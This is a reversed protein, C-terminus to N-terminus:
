RAPCCRRNGSTFDSFHTNLPQDIVRPCPSSTTEPLPHFLPPPTLVEQEAAPENGKDAEPQTAAAEVAADAEQLLTLHILTLLSISLQRIPFSLQHPCHTSLPHAPTLVEQEAVPENGKDAEPQTVAAEVVAGTEQPLTLSIFTVLTTSFGRVPSPLKQPYHAPLSPAMGLVEDKSDEPQAAAAEVAADADQLREILQQKRTLNKASIGRKRMLDRIQAVTLKSYDEAAM